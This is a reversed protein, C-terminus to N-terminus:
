SNQPLGNILEDRTMFGMYFGCTLTSTKPMDASEKAIDLDKITLNKSQIGRYSSGVANPSSFTLSYWHLKSM